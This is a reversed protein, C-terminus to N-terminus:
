YMVQDGDVYHKMSQFKGTTHWWTHFARDAVCSEPIYANKHNRLFERRKLWAIKKEISWSPDVVNMYRVREPQEYGWM